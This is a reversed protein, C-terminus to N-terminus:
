GPDPKGPRKRRDAALLLSFGLRLARQFQDPPDAISPDNAHHENMGGPHVLAAAVGPARGRDVVFAGGESGLEADPFTVELDDPRPIVELDAVPVRRVTEECLM